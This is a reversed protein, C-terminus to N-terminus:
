PGIISGGTDGSSLDTNSSLSASITYISDILTSSYVILFETGATFDLQGSIAGETLWSTAGSPLEFTTEYSYTGKPIDNLIVTEGSTVTILTARFNVSIKNSASNKLILKTGVTDSCAASLLAIVLLFIITTIIKKM